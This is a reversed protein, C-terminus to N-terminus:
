ILISKFHRERENSPIGKYAHSVFTMSKFGIGEKHRGRGQHSGSRLAQAKSLLPRTLLGIHCALGVWGGEDGSFVIDEV